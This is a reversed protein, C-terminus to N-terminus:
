HLHQLMELTVIRLVARYAQCAVAVGVALLSVYFLIAATSPTTIPFGHGSCAAHWFDRREEERAVDIRQKVGPDGGAGRALGLVVLLCALIALTVFRTSLM